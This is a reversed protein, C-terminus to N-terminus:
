GEVPHHLLAAHIKGAILALRHLFPRGQDRCGAAALGAAVAHQQHILFFSHSGIQQFPRGAHHHAQFVHLGGHCLRFCLLGGALIVATVPALAVVLFQGVFCLLGGALVVAAVPAFAM